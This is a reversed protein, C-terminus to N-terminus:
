TAVLTIIGAHLLPVALFFKAVDLLISISFLNITVLVLIIYLKSFGRQRLNYFEVIERPNIM